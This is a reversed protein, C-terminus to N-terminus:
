PTEMVAVTVSTAASFNVYVKGRDSGSTQNFLIPDFTGIVATAGAAVAFVTDGTRGYPDAVSVATVNISVGGGNVVYLLCKSSNTFVMGNAADAAVTTLIHGANTVSQNTIATRAM